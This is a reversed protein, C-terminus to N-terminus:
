KKTLLSQRSLVGLTLESAVAIFIACCLGFYIKIIFKSLSDQYCFGGRSILPSMLSQTLGILIIINILSLVGKWSEDIIYYLSLVKSEKICIVATHSIAQDQAFGRANLTSGYTGSVWNGQLLINLIKETNTQQLLRCGGSVYVWSSCYHVAWHQFLVM